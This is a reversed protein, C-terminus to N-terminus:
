GEASPTSVSPRLRRSMGILVRALVVLWVMQVVVWMGGGPDAPGSALGTPRIRVLPLSRFVEDLQDPTAKSLDGLTLRGIIGLARAYTPYVRDWEERDTVREAIGSFAVTPLLVDVRPDAVLNRYWATKVGFGACCYVAGDSICYGLPAERRLGSTRGTTRLLLMSGTLPTSFLPGLGARLVPAAFWRNVVGFARHLPGLSGALRPPYPLEGFPNAPPKEPPALSTM